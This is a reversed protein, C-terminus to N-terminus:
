RREREGSERDEAAREPQEDDVVHAFVPDGVPDHQGCRAGACHEREDADLEPMQEGADHQHQRQEHDRERDRVREAHAVHLEHQEQQASEVAVGRV